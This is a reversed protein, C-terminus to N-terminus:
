ISVVQVSASPTRYVPLTDIQGFANRFPFNVRRQSNNLSNGERDPPSTRSQICQLILRATFFLGFILYISVHQISSKSRTSFIITVFSALSIFAFLRLVNHVLTEWTLSRHCSNIHHKLDCGFCYILLSAIAIAMLLPHKKFPSVTSSQFKLQLVSLLSTVALGIIPM